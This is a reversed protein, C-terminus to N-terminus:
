TIGFKIDAHHLATGVSFTQLQVCMCKKLGIMQFWHSKRDNEEITIVAESQNISINVGEPQTRNVVFSITFNEAPEPDSDNTIIIRFCRSPNSANNSVTALDSDPHLQFDKGTHLLFFCYPACM